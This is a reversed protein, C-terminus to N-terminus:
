ARPPDSEREFVRHKALAAVFADLATERDADATPVILGPDPPDVTVAIGAQEVLRAAEGFLLLPKAHRHQDRVLEIAQGNRALAEVAAPGDPVVVADFLVSPAAELTVEAELPDGDSTQVPGLAGAVFRPVAGERALAEHVFRAAEGDVGDAVLIAVRRTRISGDGPRAFLSLAPSTEVEPAPPSALVPPMPAPMALGLGTAVRQALEDDVNALQAVVRERIAPTQVRTLEFRFARVIHDREIATQSAWFLRAQTFHDAFKEPKARVKDGHMPEAFSQFGDPGAQFPFGGSLSSPEYAARGRHIAQRHLGDRQNNHVAALPANIPIEHFNPGGLRTLQTDVYSHIRGALLPDNSFDIGPM